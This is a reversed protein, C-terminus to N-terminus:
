FVHVVQLFVFASGLIILGFFLVVLPVAVSMRSSRLIETRFDGRRFAM